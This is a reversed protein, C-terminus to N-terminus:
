WSKSSGLRKPRVFFQQLTSWTCPLNLKLTSRSKKKFLILNCSREAICVLTQSFYFIHKRTDLSFFPCKNRISVELIQVDFIEFAFFLSEHIIYRTLTSAVHSKSHALFTNIEERPEIQLIDFYDTSNWLGNRCATSGFCATNAVALLQITFGKWGKM